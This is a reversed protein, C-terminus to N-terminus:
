LLNEDLVSFYSDPHSIISRKSLYDTGLSRAIFGINYTASVLVIRTKKYQPIEKVRRVFWEGAFEPLFESEMQLDTLILDFPTDFNAHVIEIGERASSAIRQSHKIKKYSNLLSSHYRQWESSDEVILIRKEESIEEM